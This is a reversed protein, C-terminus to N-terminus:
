KIYETCNLLSVITHQIASFNSLSNFKSILSLMALDINQQSTMVVKSGEIYQVNRTSVLICISNNYM